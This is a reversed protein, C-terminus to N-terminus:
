AYFQSSHCRLKGFTVEHECLLCLRDKSSETSIARMFGSCGRTPHGTVSVTVTSSPLSLSAIIEDTSSPGAAVLSSVRRWRNGRAYSEAGASRVTTRDAGTCAVSFTKAFRLCDDILRAALRRSVRVELVGQIAAWDDDYAYRLSSRSPSTRKSGSNGPGADAPTSIRQNM